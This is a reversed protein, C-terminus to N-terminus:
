GGFLVGASWAYSVNSPESRDVLQVLFTTDPGFREIGARYADEERTYFEVPKGGSMLVFQGRHAKMMEPLMRDFSAQEEELKLMAPDTAM